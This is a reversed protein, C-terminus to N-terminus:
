LRMGEYGSRVLLGRCLEILGEKRMYLQFIERASAKMHCNTYFFGILVKQSLM